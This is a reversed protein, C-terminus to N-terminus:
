QYALKNLYGQVEAGLIYQILTLAILPCQVILQHALLGSVGDAHCFFFLPM